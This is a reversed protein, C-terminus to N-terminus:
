ERIKTSINRSKKENIQNQFIEEFEVFKAQNQELMAYLEKKSQGFTLLTHVLFLSLIYSRM